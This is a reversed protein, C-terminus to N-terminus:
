QDPGAAGKGSELGCGRTHGLLTAGHRSHEEGSWSGEEKGLDSHDGPSLPCTGAVGPGAALYGPNLDWRDRLVPLASVAQVPGSIVHRRERGRQGLLFFHWPRPTM